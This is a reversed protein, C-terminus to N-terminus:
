LPSSPEPFLSLLHDSWYSYTLTQWDNVDTGGRKSTPPSIIETFLEQIHEYFQQFYDPNFTTCKCSIWIGMPSRVLFFQGFFRNGLMVKKDMEGTWTIKGSHRQGDGM